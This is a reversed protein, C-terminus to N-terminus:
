PTIQVNNHQIRLNYWTFLYGYVDNYSTRVLRGVRDLYSMKMQDMKEQVPKELPELAGPPADFRRLDVALWFAPNSASSSTQLLPLSAYELLINVVVMMQHKEYM